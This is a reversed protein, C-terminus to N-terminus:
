KTGWSLVVRRGQGADANNHIKLSIVKSALGLDTLVRAVAGAQAAGSAWSSTTAEISIAGLSSLLPYLRALIRRGDDSVESTGNGEFLARTAVALRVATGDHDIAALDELGISALYKRSVEANSGPTRFAALGDPDEASAARPSGAPGTAGTPKPFSSAVRPAIFGATESEGLFIPTDLPKLDLPQAQQPPAGAINPGSADRPSLGVISVVIVFVAFLLTMMDAYSILWLDGEGEDGHGSTSTVFALRAPGRTATRFLTRAEAAGAAEPTPPAEALSPPDIPM